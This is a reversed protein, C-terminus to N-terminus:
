DDTVEHYNDAAWMCILSNMLDSSAEWSCRQFSAVTWVPWDRCMELWPCKRPMFTLCGLVIYIMRQRPGSLLSKYLSCAPLCVSFIAPMKIELVLRSLSPLVFLSVLLTKRWNLLLCTQNLTWQKTKHDPYGSSCFSLSFHRLDGGSTGGKTLCYSPHDM